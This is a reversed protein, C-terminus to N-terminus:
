SETQGQRDDAQHRSQQKSEQEIGIRRHRHGRTRSQDDQNRDQREQNPNKSTGPIQREFRIVV